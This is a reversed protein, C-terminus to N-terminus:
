VHNEERPLTAEMYGSQGTGKILRLVGGFASIIQSAVVPALGMSEAPSTARVESDLEFFEAVQDSSLSLDDVTIFVCLAHEMITTKVLVTHKDRLFYTALLILSGLARKLLPHYGKLFLEEFEPAADCHIDIEPLAAAVEKMLASFSIACGQTLALKEMDTILTADDILNRLRLSSQKFLEVYRTRRDSAPCLELLLNGIGFIGNAPTRIEHSFMRLFGDKLRGMERLQEHTKVLECTRELVLRELNENQDSLKRQLFRIQLHAEMRAYVEEFQYPKTVYDVGGIRFAKIKDMTENLASVFIVPIDKLAKDAKLQECVEFGNMEPMNIDLLILDPPDERATQLALAGSLVSRPNYGKETLMRLLLLANAPMDDVVLINPAVQQQTNTM